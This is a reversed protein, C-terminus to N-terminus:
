LRTYFSRWRERTDASAEGPTTWFPLTTTISTTTKFDRVECVAGRKITFRWKVTWATYGDYDEKWPRSKMISRRIDAFNTGTVNYYNTKWITSQATASFSLALLTASAFSNISRRLM